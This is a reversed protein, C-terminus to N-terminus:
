KFLFCPKSSFPQEYHKISLTGETSLFCNSLMCAAAVFYSVAFIPKRGFRDVVSNLFLLAPVESMSGIVFTTYLSGGLFDTKMSVGYYIM